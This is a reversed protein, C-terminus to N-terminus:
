NRANSFYLHSPLFVLSPSIFFLRTCSSLYFLIVAWILQTNCRSWSVWHYAEIKISFCFSTLPWQTFFPCLMKDFKTSFPSLYMKPRLHYTLTAILKILSISSIWFSNFIDLKGNHFLTELTLQQRSHVKSSVPFISIELIWFTNRQTSQFSQFPFSQFKLTELSSRKM